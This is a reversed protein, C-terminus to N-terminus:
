VCTNEPAPVPLASVTVWPRDWSYIFSQGAPKSFFSGLYESRFSAPGTATRFWAAYPTVFVSNGPLAHACASWGWWKLPKLEGTGALDAAFRIRSRALRRSQNLVRVETPIEGTIRARMLLPELTVTMAGCGFEYRTRAEDRVHLCVEQKTVSGEAARDTRFVDTRNAALRIEVAGWSARVTVHALNSRGAVVGAPSLAPVASLALVFGALM